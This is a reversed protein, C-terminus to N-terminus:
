SAYVEQYEGRKTKSAKNFNSFGGTQERRDEKPKIKRPMIKMMQSAMGGTDVREDHCGSEANYSGDKEVFTRM